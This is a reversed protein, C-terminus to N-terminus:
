RERFHLPSVDINPRNVESKLPADFSGRSRMAVFPSVATRPKEVIVFLWAPRMKLSGFEDFSNFANAAAIRPDIPFFYFQSASKSGDAEVILTANSGEIKRTM